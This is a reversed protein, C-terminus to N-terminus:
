LAGRSARASPASSDSSAVVTLAYEADTSFDGSRGHIKLTHKGPALPPLQVWLGCGTVAFRGEEGTVPNGPAAQVTISDGPYTEPEVVKGDLVVAGRADRMFAACHEPDGFSNVVPAAIPRGGPVECARGAWGGFTGALFWVDRPQNRACSRGDMDAVPNTGEAESAAWSWWRGQLEASELRGDGRM